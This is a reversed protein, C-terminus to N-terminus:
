PNQYFSYLHEAMNNLLQLWTKEEESMIWPTTTNFNTHMKWKWNIRDDNSSIWIQKNRPNIYAVWTEGHQNTYSHFHFGKIFPGDKRNFPNEGNKLFFEQPKLGNEIAAPILVLDIFSDINLENNMSLVHTIKGGHCREREEDTRAKVTGYANFHDTFFDLGVTKHNKNNFTAKRSQTGDKVTITNFHTNEKVLVTLGSRVEASM